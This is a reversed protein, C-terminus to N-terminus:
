RRMSRCSACNCKRTKNQKQQNRSKRITTLYGRKSNRNRQTRNTNRRNRRSYGGGPTDTLKPTDKLEPIDELHVHIFFKTPPEMTMIVIKSDTEVFGSFKKDLSLPNDANNYIKKTKLDLYLPKYKEILHKESSFTIKLPKSKYKADLGNITNVNDFGTIDILLSTDIKYEGNTNIELYNYSKKNINDDGYKRKNSSMFINSNDLNVISGYFGIETENFLPTIDCGFGQPSHGHIQHVKMGSIKYHDKSTKWNSLNVPGSASSYKKTDNSYGSTYALLQIMINSPVGDTLGNNSDNVISMILTNKFYTNYEEVNKVISNLKKVSFNLDEVSSDQGFAGGSLLFGLTKRVTRHDKTSLDALKKANDGSFESISYKELNKLFENETPMGAHSFLFVSNNIVSALCMISTDYMKCLWGKFLSSNIKTTRPTKVFVGSNDFKADFKPIENIMMSKFVALVIFAKYNNTFTQPYKSYYESGFLEYPITELLYNASMTGKAGDAGFIDVFRKHFPGTPIELEGEKYIQNCYNDDFEQFNRIPNPKDISGGPNWFTYWNNMKHTWPMMNMGSECGCTLLNCNELTLDINGNNFQDVLNETKQNFASKNLECLYRCKIKNLDRNGLTLTVNSNPKIIEHINFLNFSKLEKLIPNPVVMTSDLLDGCVVIPVTKDASPRLLSYLNFGEPDSIAYYKPTLPHFGFADLKDSFTIKHGLGADQIQKYANTILPEGKEDLLHLNYCYENLIKFSVPTEPFKKNFMNVGTICTKVVCINTVLGCVDFEIPSHLKINKSNRWAIISEALGTSYKVIDDPVVPNDLIDIVKLPEGAGQEEYYIHYYFAGNADFNCLEGKNLRIIYSNGKEYHPKKQDGVLKKETNYNDIEKNLKNIYPRQQFEEIEKKCIRGSTDLPPEELPPEQQTNLHSFKKISQDFSKISDDHCDTNSIEEKPDKPDKPVKPVKISVVKDYVIEEFEKILEKGQGSVYGDTTENSYEDVLDGDNVDDDKFTSYKPNRSMNTIRRSSDLLSDYTTRKVCAKKKRDSCHPPYYGIQFSSHNPPHSDKTFVIIDYENSKRVKKVYESIDNKFDQMSEKHGPLAGLTGEIFCQQVDVVILVRMKTRDTAM